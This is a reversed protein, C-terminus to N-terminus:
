DSFMPADVAEPPIVGRDALMKLCGRWMQDRDLEALELPIDYEVESGGSEVVIKDLRFRTTFVVEEAPMPDPSFM